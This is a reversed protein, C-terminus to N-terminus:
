HSILKCQFTYEKFKKGMTADYFHRKHSNCGAQFVIYYNHFFRILDEINEYNKTKHLKRLKYALIIIEHM